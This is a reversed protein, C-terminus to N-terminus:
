PIETASDFFAGNGPREPLAKIVREKLTAPKISRDEPLLKYTGVIKTVKKTMIGEARKINAIKM